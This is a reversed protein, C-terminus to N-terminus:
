VLVMVDIVDVQFEKLATFFENTKYSLSFCTRNGVICCGSKCHGSHSLVKMLMQLFLKKNM